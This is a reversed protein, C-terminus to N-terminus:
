EEKKKKPQSKPRFTYLPCTTALCAEVQQKWTGPMHDDYICDKCMAYIAAQRTKPPKSSTM